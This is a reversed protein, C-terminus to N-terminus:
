DLPEHMFLRVEDFAVMDHVTGAGPEGNIWVSGVLKYIGSADGPPAAQDIGPDPIAASHEYKWRGTAADWTASGVAVTNTYINGEFGAGISEADLRLRWPGGLGGAM